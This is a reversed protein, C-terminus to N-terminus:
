VWGGRLRTALREALGPAAANVPDELFKAKGIKHQATLNEHVDEAYVTNYGLTVSWGKASKVPEEATGTRRMTGTLVPCQDKSVALITNAEDSLGQPIKGDLDEGHREMEKLVAELGVVKVNFTKTM